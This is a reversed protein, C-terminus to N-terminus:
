RNGNYDLCLRDSAVPNEDYYRAFRVIEDAAVSVQSLMVEYIEKVYPHAMNSKQRSMLLSAIKKENGTAEMIKCIGNRIETQPIRCIKYAAKMAALAALFEGTSVGPCFVSAAEAVDMNVALHASTPYTMPNHGDKLLIYRELETEIKGHSMGTREMAENVVPHCASDSIYHCICGLFYAMRDNDDRENLILVAREYQKRFCEKHMRSGISQVESEMGPNHFFLTDPGHLGALFCEYGDAIIERVDVPLAKYVLAGFKKHAYISPM